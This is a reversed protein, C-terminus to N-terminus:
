LPNLPDTSSGSLLCDALDHDVGEWDDRLWYPPEGLTGTENAHVRLTRAQLLAKRPFAKYPELPIRIGLRQALDPDSDDLDHHGRCLVAALDLVLHAGSLKSRRVIEHVDLLEGRPHWCRSYGALECRNGARRRADRRVKDRRGGEAKRKASQSRM